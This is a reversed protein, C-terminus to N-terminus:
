LNDLHMSHADPGSVTTLKGASASAFRKDGIGEFFIRLEQSNSDELFQGVGWEPKGEFRVRTGKPFQIERSM